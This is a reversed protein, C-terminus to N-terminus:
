SFDVLASSNESEMLSADIVGLATKLWYHGNM